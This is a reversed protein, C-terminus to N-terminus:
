LRKARYAPFWTDNALVGARQCLEDYRRRDYIQHLSRLPTPAVNFREKFRYLGDGVRVGGGINLTHAGMQQLRVIANWTVWTGLDRGRESTAALHGEAYRGAFRYLHVAHVQDGICAGLGICTPDHAWREFTEPSFHDSGDLRHMAEPHLHKLSDALVDPEEVLTVGNSEAERLKRRINPSFTALINPVSLDLLFAANHAVIECDSSTQGLEVSLALQIYGAIWNQEIAFERWLALPASSNPEISAGSLGPITAIDTTGMFTREFFPLLMRAGKSRVVTLKPDVGSASLGWAYGWSQSPLGGQRHEAEWRERDDLRLITVDESM